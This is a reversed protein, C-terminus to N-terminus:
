AGGTGKGLFIRRLTYALGRDQFCCWAATLTRLLPNWEMLCTYTRMEADSMEHRLEVDPLSLKKALKVTQLAYRVRRGKLIRETERNWGGCSILECADLYCALYGRLHRMTPMSTVTSGAHVKRVYFRWPRHGARQAALMVRTMFINDEYFFRANPFRLRAGEVFNRRLIMLCPSVTYERNKLFAAFLDRGSYVGFYDHRRIYDEARVYGNSIELGEDVRTEADFFLVDLRERDMEAVLCALAEQDGLEDDADMFYVYEGQALELGCNRAVGQGANKQTVVRVRPDEKACEALITASGDTSGDDVCIVEIDHLTQGLVSDLAARLYRAANFVPIM